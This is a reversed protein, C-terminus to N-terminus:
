LGKENQSITLQQKNDCDISIHWAKTKLNFDINSQFLIDTIYSPCSDAPVISKSVFTLYLNYHGNSLYSCDKVHSVQSTYLEIVNDSRQILGLCEETM